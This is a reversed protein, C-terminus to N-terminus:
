LGLIKDAEQMVNSPQNLTGAGSGSPIIQQRGELTNKWNQYHKKIEGLRAKLQDPDQLQDLSAVTSQLAALEQVAVQGLAGGTPSADRMAQLEAFGLNAKITELDAALNRADTMPVNRLQGGIGATSYGVKGLAQDVKSIVRDAQAISAQTRRGLKENKENMEAQTEQQKIIANQRAIENAERGRTDILNQGRITVGRNDADNQKRYDFDRQKWQQELQDKADLSTLMYREALAKIQAPDQPITQRAEEAQQTNLVGLQVLQDVSALANEYTPNQAVAGFVQGTADYKKMGLEFKKSEADLAASDQESFTKQVAPLKSGLGLEAMRSYLRNRNLTGDPELADRYANSTADAQETERQAAATQMELLRNQNGLGQIQMARAIAQGRDPIQFQAPRVNLPISADIAM